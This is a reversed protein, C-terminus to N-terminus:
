FPTHTWDVSRLLIPIVRAEDRRHREIAYSMEKSYCYESTLFSPSILLLIIHATNLHDQIEQEWNTGPSIEGDYWTLIHGSHRLGALHTDLEERLTHDKRAYCYFLKLARSSNREM